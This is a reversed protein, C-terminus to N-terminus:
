WRRAARVSPVGRYDQGFRLVLRQQVADLREFARFVEIPPTEVSAPVAEAAEQEIRDLLVHHLTWATEPPLSLMVSRSQDPPDSATM